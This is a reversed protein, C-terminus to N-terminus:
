FNRFFPQDFLNIDGAGNSGTRFIERGLGKGQFIAVISNVVGNGPMEISIVIQPTGQSLAM